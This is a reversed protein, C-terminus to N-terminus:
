PEMGLAKVLFAWQDAIDEIQMWTPKGAGHGARTEIRILVPGACGQAEQLRAAYKFSHWPVVRDDHDATTVLTPPYCAGDKINHYPSYAYLAKFEEPNESLGLDSSWQRANASATHYRLMDMVGVAPLAAAFLERRQNLVAGILLGGNSGGQIALRKPSTYKERILYEAAAIFDDFVNQKKLRTGALHWEEGYEGGGRLNALAYVGGMELWVIRSTSYAPTESVNFGGYGYLLTPNNGDLTLGKKHVIFMPIRTGDKSTYFVQRTQYRDLDAAVKAQRFLESQGTAVDYRYITAPSTFSVFAFFTERKDQHGGFGAATGIGPLAVERVLAGARDLVKILSKADKLYQAVISGGVYSAQDLPEAAEPVVTKWDKPDPRRVDIAVVRSRPADKTTQVYFIPGDNGVFTYLADWKDLLREVKGEPQNKGPTLPMFHLASSDYGDFIGIVLYRGDETVSAYPGRSKHGLDYVLRDESQKAGIRHHWVSVAKQDDAKAGGPAVPYRSYYFGKADRSWSVRTFKTFQLFDVTDQGTAVDRVKWTRWDTGGDQISYALLRGDPSPVVQGLAVTGDKSFGNPDILVRPESGWRDMVYLVDQNQLGDNKRFFYRGGEEFPVQYREYNWLATLREILRKRAPIAALFPQALANQAEVWAKVEPADLQELWRYPDAVKTGHYADTHDVTRAPPRAPAEAAAAVALLALLACLSLISSLNM